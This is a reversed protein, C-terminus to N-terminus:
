WGRVPDERAEDGEGFQGALLAVALREAVVTEGVDEPLEEVPKV